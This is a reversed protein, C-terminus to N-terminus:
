KQFHNKVYSENSPRTNRTRYEPPFDNFYREKIFNKPNENMAIENNVKKLELRFYALLLLLLLTVPIFIGFILFWLPLAQFVEVISSYRYVM